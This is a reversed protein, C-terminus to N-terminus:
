LFYLLDVGGLYLIGYIIPIAIVPVYDNFVDRFIKLARNIEYNIRSKSIMFIRSLEVYSMKELRKAMFVEYTLDSMRSRCKKLLVPFDTHSEGQNCQEILRETEFGIRKRRMEDLDLGSEKQHRKLYNICRNKIATAFFSRYDSVYQSDKEQILKFICQSFIEEASSYDRVYSYALTTFKVKEQYLSFIEENTIIHKERAKTM